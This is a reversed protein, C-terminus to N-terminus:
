MEWESVPLEKRLGLILGQEFGGRDVTVEM